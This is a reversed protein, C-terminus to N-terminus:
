EVFYVPVKGMGYKKYILYSCYGDVLEFNKNLKIKGLTGYKRFNYLKEKFKKSNPSTIQFDYTIVIDKIPIWYEIDTRYGFLLNKLIKTMMM